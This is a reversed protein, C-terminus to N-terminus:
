GEPRRGKVSTSGHPETSAKRKQWWSGQPMSLLLKSVIWESFIWGFAGTVEKRIVVKSLLIAIILPSTRLCPSVWLPHPPSPPPLRRLIRDRLLTTCSHPQMVCKNNRSSREKLGGMMQYPWWVSDFGDRLKGCGVRKERTELKEHWIVGSATVKGNSSVYPESRWKFYYTCHATHLTCCAVHLM